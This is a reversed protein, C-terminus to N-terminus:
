RVRSTKLKFLAKWKVTGAEVKSRAGLQLNHNTLSRQALWKHTHTHTYKTPSCVFMPIVLTVVWSELHDHHDYIIFQVAEIKIKVMVLAWKKERYLKNESEKERKVRPKDILRGGKLM